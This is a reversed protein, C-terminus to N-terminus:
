ARATRASGTETSRSSGECFTLLVPGIVIEDGDVLVRSAEVRQGCVFTGNKSQLDRVTAKGRAVVISAHRRSVRTSDIWVTAQEFRGILHEGDALPIERTGWILRCSRPQFASVETEEARAEGCFSYGYSYATRVFRPDRADDGVAARVESVLRALSSESVFTRPWVQDRIEAKSLARPRAIILMELLTFAKPSLPRVEDALRLERASSDVVCEGFRLRM